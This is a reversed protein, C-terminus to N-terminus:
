EDIPMPAAENSPQVQNNIVVESGNRLKLQGSTVVMDGANLGKLIAVQDGRTEGATVFIQKVTMKTKGDKDKETEQIIFITEGFPNYTVATQPVTLFHGESGAPVEISVFMGPTLEHKLNDIIAEVLFNRSDTEVKPNIANITGAFTRGPYTDTTISVNQGIAMQALNQQPLYFDVYISDLLQLTVIKEGPNLYQGINIASIGLKGSFPAKITKKGILATQQAVLASRSKFEAADADVVAQSVAQAELQKKDREYATQALNAAAELAHLQAIDTDANLQALIQDVKVDDGSKFNIQTIIGPIETTVDVGQVARLNGISKIKPQWPHMEAKIASVTVPPMKQSSMYKKMMSGMFTKYGFIGGFIFGVVILMILMRKFM